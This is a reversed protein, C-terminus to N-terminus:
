VYDVAGVAEYINSMNYAMIGSNEYVPLGNLTRTFSQSPKKDKIFLGIGVIVLVFFNLIIVFIKIKNMLEKEKFQFWFGTNKHM